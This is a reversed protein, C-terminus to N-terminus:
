WGVNLRGGQSETLVQMLAQFDAGTAPVICGDSGHPGRGHIYFGDRGCMGFLSTGAIPTLRASYGLHPHHAPPDITYSGIPLPGGHIGAAHDTKVCMALPNNMILPDAAGPTKSGGRGGSYAVITFPQTSSLSSLIASSISYNLEVATPM